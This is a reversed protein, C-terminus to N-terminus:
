LASPSWKEPYLLPCREEERELPEDSLKKIETKVREIVEKGASEALGRRSAIEHQTAGTLYERFIGSVDKAREIAIDVIERAEMRSAADVADHVLEVPAEARVLRRRARMRREDQYWRVLAYFTRFRLYSDSREWLLRNKLLFLCAEQTADDLQESAAYRRCYALACTRAFDFLCTETLM